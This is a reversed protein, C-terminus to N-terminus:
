LLLKRFESLAENYKTAAQTRNSAGIKRFIRQLHNKVTFPSIHLATAIQSNTEGRCILDLIEEERMSLNLDDSTRQSKGRRTGLPFSAVRRFALDIQPTLLYLAHMVQNRARDESLPESRHLIYLSERGDRADLVGHVMTAHMACLSRRLASGDRTPFKWVDERAFVLPQRGGKIWQMHIGQVFTDISSHLLESTRVGPLGSVIDLAVKWKSFDGSASILVEHPLFDQIGGRLWVFLQYHREISLCDREIRLLKEGEEMTLRAMQWQAAPASLPARATDSGSVAPRPLYPSDCTKPVDSADALANSFPTEPKQATM